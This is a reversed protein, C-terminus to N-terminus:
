TSIMALFWFIKYYVIIGEIGRITIQKHSFQHLEELIYIDYGNQQKSCSIM